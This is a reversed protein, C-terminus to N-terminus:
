HEIQYKRFLYPVKFANLLFNGIGSQESMHDTNYLVDAVSSSAKKTSNDEMEHTKM